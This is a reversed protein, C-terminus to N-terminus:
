KKDKLTAALQKIGSALQGSAVKVDPLMRIDDSARTSLSEYVKYFNGRDFDTWNSNYLNHYGIVRATKAVLPHLYVEDPADGNYIGWRKMVKCANDWAEYMTPIHARDIALDFAANRWESISPFFQRTTILHKSAIELLENDIDKLMQFYLETQGDKLQFNPYALSMVAMLKIVQQETAM